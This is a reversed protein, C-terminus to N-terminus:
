LHKNFTLSMTAPMTKPVGDIVGPSFQCSNLWEKASQDLDPYGTSKIVQAGEHSGDAKVILRLTATGSENNERASKSFSPFSGNCSGKVISVPTGNPVPRLPTEARANDTIFAASAMMLTSITWASAKIM